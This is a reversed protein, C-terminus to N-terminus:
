MLWRLRHTTGFPLDDAILSYKNGRAVCTTHYIMDEITVPLTTAHGQVVNGMSDGVLLSDLECDSMMSGFSADYCTLAAIKEDRIKMDTLDSLTVQKRRASQNGEHIYSSM